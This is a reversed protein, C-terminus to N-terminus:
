KNRNWTKPPNSAGSQSLRHVQKKEILKLEGHLHALASLNAFIFALVLGLLALVVVTAMGQRRKAPNMRSTNLLKM